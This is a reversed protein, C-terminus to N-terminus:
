RRDSAALRPWCAAPRGAGHGSGSWSSCPLGGAPPARAPCIIRACRVCLVHSGCTSVAGTLWVTRRVLRARRVLHSGSSRPSGPSGPSTSPAITTLPTPPAPTISPLPGGIPATDAALHRQIQAAAGGLGSVTIDDWAQLRGTASDFYLVSCEIPTPPNAQLARLGAGGTSGQVFVRTGGPLTWTVRHHIHGALVLPVVGAFPAAAVPDHVVAINPPPRAAAATAALQQGMQAVADEGSAQVDLDPTFRPDGQGIIRLGDVTVIHGRLVVANPQRAVAAQTAYSDHNGRIFVYPVGFTRIERALDHNEPPSGHDTLDGSDIIFNVAFQHSISHMVSFAAPNDHIDSM